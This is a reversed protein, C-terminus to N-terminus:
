HSNGAITQQAYQAMLLQIEHIIKNQRAQDEASVERLYDNANIVGNELQASSTNKIRTRLDVIEDDSSLLKSYKNVESNQQKLTLNTNFLFTQKQSEINQRTLDLVARDNKLTYLGALSWSLRLGGIYYSKFDNSLMNLAPRGYGGQVFLSLKPLNRASLLRNQVDLNQTQYNYLMVEPRNTEQSLVPAPPKVFTEQDGITRNIFLELMDLYAKRMADLEITRQNAKLLEARLIDVSSKFATGNNVLAEAKRLGLQIDNRLLEVQKIQEDVLLVGFFLQNIREKLKYLEVDLRQEEIIANVEQTQKQGRIIGGDFLSQNLEGYIKYQDKSITPIELGPLHIPVQTVASQYTAQGNISAQPLFGKSLNQLSYEKTKTILERQKILPYNQEAMSYCDEITLSQAYGMAACVLLLFALLINKM